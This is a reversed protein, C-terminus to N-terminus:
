HADQGKNGIRCAISQAQAQSAQQAQQRSQGNHMGAAMSHALQQSATLVTHSCHIRKVHQRGM